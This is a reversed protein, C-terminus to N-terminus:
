SVKQSVRSKSVGRLESLVDAIAVRLKQTWVPVDEAPAPAPQSSCAATAEDSLDGRDDGIEDESCPQDPDHGALPLM